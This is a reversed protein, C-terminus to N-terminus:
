TEDNHLWKTSGSCHRSGNKDTENLCFENLGRNTRSQQGISLTFPDCKESM